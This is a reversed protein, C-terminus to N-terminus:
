KFIGKGLIGTIYSKGFACLSMQLGRPRGITHPILETVLLNESFISKKRLFRTLLILDYRLSPCCRFSRSFPILMGSFIIKHVQSTIDRYMGCLLPTSAISFLKLFSSLIFSACLSKIRSQM